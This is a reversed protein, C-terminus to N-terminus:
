VNLAYDDYVRIVPSLPKGFRKEKDFRRESRASIAAGAFGTPTDIDDTDPLLAKPLGLNCAPCEAILKDLRPCIIVKEKKCTFSNDKIGALVGPLVDVLGLSQSEILRKNESVQHVSHYTCINSFM